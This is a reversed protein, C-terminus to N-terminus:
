CSEHRLYIFPLFVAMSLTFGKKHIIHFSYTKLDNALNYFKHPFFKNLFESLYTLRFLLFKHQNYM